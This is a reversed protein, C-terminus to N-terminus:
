APRKEKEAGPEAAYTEALDLLATVESPFEKSGLCIASKLIPAANASTM